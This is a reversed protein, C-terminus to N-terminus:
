KQKYEQTCLNPGLSLGKSCVSECFFNSTSFITLKEKTKHKENPNLNCKRYSMFLM